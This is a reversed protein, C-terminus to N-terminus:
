RCIVTEPLGTGGGTRCLLMQGAPLVGSPVGETYPVGVPWLGTVNFVDVARRSVVPPADVLEAHGTSSMWLVWVAVTLCCVLLVRRGFTM